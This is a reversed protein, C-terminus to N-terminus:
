STVILSGKEYRKAVVQFFLNAEERGLPLYGIEDIILLRPTTINRKLFDNLRGQRAAASLAMVLDAASIFRTKIGMQTALYGLAIALHTKGVGSPGLLVVNESREVFAMSSLEMMSKKTVGHAFAFDFEELTKLVPFGATRLLIARTRVQKEDLQAKLLAEFFDAFTLQNAAARAALMSYQEAMREIRLQQCAEQIREHQIDM